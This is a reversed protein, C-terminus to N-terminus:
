LNFKSASLYFFSIFFTHRVEITSEKTVDLPLVTLRDGHQEKLLSLSNAGGPDRCTAVVRGEASRELLQKVFELGLGRSAGQVLAVGPATAQQASGGEVSAATRVVGTHFFSSCLSSRSVMESSTRRRFARFFCASVCKSCVVAAMAMAMARAATDRHADRQV